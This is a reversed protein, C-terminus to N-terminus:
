QSASNTQGSYSGDQSGAPASGTPHQHVHTAAPAVGASALFHLLRERMHREVALHAVPAALATVTVAYSHEGAATVGKVAPPRLVKDKLAPDLAMDEVFAELASRLAAPDTAHSVRLEVTARQPQQSFNTVMVINGNPVYTRAGRMDELTTTTLSFDRVIGKTPPSTAADGGSAGSVELRVYDGLSFRDSTLLTLGAIFSKILSQAGLGVVLGFIGASLLLGRADVGALGLVVFILIVALILNLASRVGVLITNLRAVSRCDEPTVCELPRPVMLLNILTLVAAGVALTLLVSGVRWVVPNSTWHPGRPPEVGYTPLVSGGAAPPKFGGGSGLLPDLPGAAGGPGMTGLAGAIAAVPVAM